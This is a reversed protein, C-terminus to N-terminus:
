IFPINGITDADQSDILAKAVEHSAKNREDYQYDESACTSLWAICLRTFSQQITRHERTMCECVGNPHFSFSNLMDGLKRANEKDIDTVRM